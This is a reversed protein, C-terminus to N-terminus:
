KPPMILRARLSILRSGTTQHLKAEAKPKMTATTSAALRNASPTRSAKSGRARLKRARRRASCRRGFAQVHERDVPQLDFQIGVAPEHAGDVAQPQRDLAALGERQDAFGAAALAHRRQ